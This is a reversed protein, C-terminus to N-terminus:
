KNTLEAYLDEFKQAIDKINFNNLCNQYGAEGIKKRLECNKLLKILAESWGNESFPNLLVGNEWNSIFEDNCGVDQSVVVPIKM